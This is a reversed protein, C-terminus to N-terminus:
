DVRPFAHPTVAKGGSKVAKVSKHDNSQKTSPPTKVPQTATSQAAPSAKPFNNSQSKPPTKNRTPFSYVHLHELFVQMLRKLSTMAHKGRELRERLDKPRIGRLFFERQDEFAKDGLTIWYDKFYNVFNSFADRYKFVDASTITADKKAAMSVNLKFYEHAYESDMKPILCQLADIMVPDSLDDPIEGCFIRGLMNQLLLWLPKGNGNNQAQYLPYDRLVKRCQEPNTETMKPRYLSDKEALHKAITLDAREILPAPQVAHSPPFTATVKKSLDNCPLTKENVVKTILPSLPRHSRVVPERSTTAQRFHLGFPGNHVRVAATSHFSESHVSSRASVVSGQDSNGCFHRIPESVAPHSSYVPPSHPPSQVTLMDRILRSVIM